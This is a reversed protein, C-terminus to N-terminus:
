KMSLLSRTSVCVKVRKRKPVVPGSVAIISPSPDLSPLVNSIAQSHSKDVNEGEVDSEVAVKAGRRPNRRIATVPLKPKKSQRKRKSAPQLLKDPLSPQTGSTSAVPVPKPREPKAGSTSPHTSPQLTAHPLLDNKVAASHHNSPPIDQDSESQSPTALSDETSALTVKKKSKRTARKRKKKPLHKEFASPIAKMSTAAEKGKNRAGSPRGKNNTKVDPDSKPVIAYRDTKLM